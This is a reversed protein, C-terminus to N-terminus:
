SNDEIFKQMDPEQGPRLRWHTVGWYGDDDKGVNYPGGEYEFMTNPYANAGTHGYGDYGGYNLFEVDTGRPPLQETVPTWMLEKQFRTIEAKLRIIEDAMLSSMSCINHGIDAGIDQFIREQELEIVGCRICSSFCNMYDDFEDSRISALEKDVEQKIYKKLQLERKNM